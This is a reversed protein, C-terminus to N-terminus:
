QYKITMAACIRMEVIIKMIKLFFYFKKSFLTSLDSKIHYVTVRGSCFAVSAPMCNLAADGLPLAVSESETM